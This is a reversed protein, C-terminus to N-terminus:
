YNKLELVKAAPDPAIVFTEGVLVADIQHETMKIMDARSKIGSESVVTVGTEPILRRLKFTTNIDTVFTSLNRNNIGILTAGIALARHLELQDHVEVLATLGLKQTLIHLESLLDDALAAVILLVADAGLLYSQYIQYPHIIFDKRLLPVPTVLRIDALYQQHGGFFQRDTLVSIAAAGAQTYSKALALHDFDPCLLGKSPSRRKVEAIINVRGPTTIAKAFDRRYATDQTALAALALSKIEDFPVRQMEQQLEQQKHELIKQLM